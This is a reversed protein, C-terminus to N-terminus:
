TAGSGTGKTGEDPRSDHRRVKAIASAIRNEYFRQRAEEWNRSKRTAQQDYDILEKACAEAIIKLFSKPGNQDTSYFRVNGTEPLNDFAIRIKEKEEETLERGRMGEYAEIMHNAEEENRM